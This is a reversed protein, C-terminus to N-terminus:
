DSEYSGIDCLMGGPNKDIRTHATQDLVECTLDDGGDIALSGSTSKLTPYGSGFDTLLSLQPNTNTINGTGSSIISGLYSIQGQGM